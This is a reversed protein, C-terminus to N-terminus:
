PKGRHTHGGYAPGRELRDGESVAPLQSRAPALANFGTLKVGPYCFCPNPPVYLLGNAPMVGYRCAGRIWDNQCNLGGTLSVFEAGRNPTILYRETAKTQYCRLHHGPTFVDDTDLTVTLQGTRLDRGVIRQGVWHWVKGQAVFLEPRAPRANVSWLKRGSQGDFAQLTKSSLVVVRGGHVVLLSATRGVPTRWRERGDQLGCCVLTSGDRYFVRKSTAATTLRGIRGSVKWLRRESRVDVAVLERNPKCLLLVGAVCRIEETGDSDPLTTLTKGTAADLVSVPAHYGLTMFLRDGEVVLRRPVTPPISRLASRGWQKPGWEPLPRKWLLVGNFADRAILVWRDPLPAETLSTLGEDFVYFLRGGGSVMAVLSSTFEHSRTWLPGCTWQLRRPPGLRRDRAVANNSADHLYHTWSDIDDPWPKGTKEWRGERRVCLVGGPALVRRMEEASLHGPEEVVLLNVSEDVYPLRRGDFRVVSVSGYLGLSQIHRRAAAVAEADTELGQVLYREDLRLAATLGGGGCGVHVVLGGRVGSSEILRRAEQVVASAPAPSTRSAVVSPRGLVPGALFVFSLAIGCVSSDRM